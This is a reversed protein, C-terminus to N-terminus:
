FEKPLYIKNNEILKDDSYLEFRFWGAHIFNTKDLTLAPQRINKIEFLFNDDADYFKVHYKKREADPLSIFIYGDKNTYIYFSPIFDSRKPIIAKVSTTVSDNQRQIQNNRSVMSTFTATDKVPQKAATFYFQGKDVNVFLRYYMHDNAAKTDAYGNDKANPDTVSLITKYNKLSDHSSQISIQKVLPYNNVWGIIVRNNGANTVSFKPLTDQAFVGVSLLNLLILFLILFIRNM